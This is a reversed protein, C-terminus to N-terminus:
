LEVIHDFGIIKGEPSFKCKIPFFFTPTGTGNHAKRIGDSITCPVEVTLWIQDAYLPDRVKIHEYQKQLETMLPSLATFSLDLKITEDRTEPPLEIISLKM